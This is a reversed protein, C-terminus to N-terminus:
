NANLHMITFNSKWVSKQSWLKSISNKKEKKQKSM